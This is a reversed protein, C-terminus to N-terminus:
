MTIELEPLIDSYQSVTISLPYWTNGLSANIDNDAMEETPQKTEICEHMM